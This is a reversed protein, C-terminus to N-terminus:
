ESNKGVKDGFYRLWVYRYLVYNLGLSLINAHDIWLVKLLDRGQDGLINIVQDFGMLVLLFLISTSFAGLGVLYYKNTNRTIYSLILGWIVGFVFAMLVLVPSFMLISANFNLIMM